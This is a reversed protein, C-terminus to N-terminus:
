IKEFGLRDEGNTLTVIGCCKFGYKSYLYRMKKNNEHTDGRFHNTFQECFRLCEEFCNKYGEKGALTHIVGYETENDLWKGEKIEIYSPDEGIKFSFVLYITEGEEGVYLIDDKINQTIFEKSPHDIHDWQTPNGNSVMYERAEKYLSMVKELDNLTAKRIM